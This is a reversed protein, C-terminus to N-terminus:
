LYFKVSLQGIRADHTDGVLGFRSSSFNGNPNTFQTHNFINFFEARVEVAMSETIAVRKAIGFDTNLIGPGHFFRRASTGFTGLVTNKEWADRLFFRNNGDADLNRPDTIVVYAVLNPQDANSGTLSYDGRSQRSSASM